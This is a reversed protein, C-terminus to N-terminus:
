QQYGYNWKNKYGVFIFSIEKVSKVIQCYKFPCIGQCTLREVPTTLDLWELSCFQGSWHFPRVVGTSLYFPM